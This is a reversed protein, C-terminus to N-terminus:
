QINLLKKRHCSYSSVSRLQKQQSIIKVCIDRYAL